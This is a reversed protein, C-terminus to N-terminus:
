SGDAPDLKASKRFLGDLEELFERPLFCSENDEAYITERSAYRVSLSAGYEEPLGMVTVSHGNFQPIDYRKVLEDLKNLFTHSERFDKKTGTDRVEYTAKVAGNEFKATLFFIHNGLVGPEADDVTSFRCEFAIIRTDEITKPADPDSTDKRGGDEVDEAPSPGPTGLHPGGQAQEVMGDRDFVTAFFKLYVLACIVLAVLVILVILVPKRM